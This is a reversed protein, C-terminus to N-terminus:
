LNKQAKKKREDDSNEYEEEEATSAAAESASTKSHKGKGAEEGKAQLKSQIRELQERNILLFL